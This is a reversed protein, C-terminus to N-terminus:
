GIQNGDVDWITVETDPNHADGECNRFENVHVHCKGTSAGSGGTLIYPDCSTAPPNNTTGLAPARCTGTDIITPDAPQDMIKSQESIMAKKINNAVVGNGYKTLHFCRGM